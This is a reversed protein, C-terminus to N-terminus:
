GMVEHAVAEPPLLQRLVSRHPDLAPCEDSDTKLLAHSVETPDLIRPPVREELESVTAHRRVVVNATTRNQCALETLFDLLRERCVDAPKPWSQTADMVDYWICMDDRVNPLQVDDLTAERLDVLDLSASALAAGTLNAGTLDAGTPNADALIAGTLDAKRLIAGTLNVATLDAERLDAGTLTAGVLTAGTFDAETLIAGTLNVATLTTETLDAETLDVETLDAETLDAGTLTAGRLTAERFDAGSLLAESLNMGLPLVIDKFSERKKRPFVCNHFQNGTMFESIYRIIDGCLFGDFDRNLFVLALRVSSGLAPGMDESSSRSSSADFVVEWARFIRQSQRDELDIMLTILTLIVASLAFFISWPAILCVVRHISRVIRGFVCLLRVTSEKGKRWLNRLYSSLFTPM